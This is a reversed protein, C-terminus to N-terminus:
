WLAKEEGLGSKYVVEFQECVVLMNEDFTMRKEKLCRTLFLKHIKRWTELKRDGEGERFAHEQTVESFPVIDVKINKIICCAIDNEDLIVSYEGIRPLPEHGYLIYLSSTATKLGKLVHETLVKANDGFTWTDFKDCEINNKETFENWLQEASM